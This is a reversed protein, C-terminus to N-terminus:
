RYVTRGRKTSIANDKVILKGKDSSDEGEWVVTGNLKYGWPKLFNDVIYSLWAEYEYFKEGGDWEIGTGDSTPTWQCWLGPVHRPASNHDLVSADNGQGFQGDDKSGVYFAGDPGIHLKAALRIPDPFKAAKNADRNMHRIGAFAQLYALHEPALPKNLDFRGHFDTTYGM